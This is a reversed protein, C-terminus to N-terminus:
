EDSRLREINTEEYTNGFTSLVRIMAFVMHKMVRMRNGLAHSRFHTDLDVLYSGRLPLEFHDLNDPVLRSYGLMAVMILVLQEVTQSGQASRALDNYLSEGEESNAWEQLISLQRNAADTQRRFLTTTWTLLVLQNNQLGRLSEIATYTHSLYCRFDEVQGFSFRALVLHEEEFGLLLSHRIQMTRDDLDQISIRSQSFLPSKSILAIMEQVDANGFEKSATIEFVSAFLEANKDTTSEESFEHQQRDVRGSSMELLARVLSTTQVEDDKPRKPPSPIRLSHVLRAILGERDSKLHIQTNESHHDDLHLLLLVVNQSLREQVEVSSTEIDHILVQRELKPLLKYARAWDRYAQAAKPDDGFCIAETALILWRDHAKRTAYIIGYVDKEREDPEPPRFDNTESLCAPIDDDEHPGQSTGANVEGGPSEVCEWSGGLGHIQESGQTVSTGSDASEPM